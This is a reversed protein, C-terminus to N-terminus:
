GMMKAPDDPNESAPEWLKSTENFQHKNYFTKTLCDKGYERELLTTYAYPIKATVGEFYSDRLPFIDQENYKHRDKTMLAGKQGKKRADYDKRVCTIDIFLGSSTDIWRADIVNLTDEPSRIVFNPNIELLFKRGASTGPVNFHHETMNYYQALFYMTTESVQVDIDTDWPMIKQNWWWGLLTGHMIWTEAGIDSMTSLYSKVMATLHPVRLSDELPQSAFRGDYHYHFTSEHFYKEAPDGKKGSYDTNMSTRVSMFDADCVAPPVILLWIALLFAAVM